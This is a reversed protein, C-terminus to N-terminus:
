THYALGMRKMFDQVKEYETIYQQGKETLQLPADQILGLETLEKLYTKLRDFPINAKGQIRTLIVKDENKESQIASLMDCYIKM